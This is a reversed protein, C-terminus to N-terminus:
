KGTYNSRLQEKFNYELHEQTPNIPQERFQNETKEKAKQIIMKAYKQM